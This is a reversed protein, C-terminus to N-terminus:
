LGAVQMEGPDDALVTIQSATMPQHEQELDFPSQIGQRGNMAFSPKLKKGAGREVPQRQRLGIAFFDPRPEPFMAAPEESRMAMAVRISAILPRQLLRPLQPSSVNLM